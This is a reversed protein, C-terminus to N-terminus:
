LLVAVGICIVPVALPINYWFTLVMLIVAVAAITQKITVNM